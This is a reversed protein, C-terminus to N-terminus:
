RRAPAASPENEKAQLRQVLAQYSESRVIKNFQSRYNAVLSVGEIVVDYALWRGDKRHMRYDVPVETGSSPVITTKVVAEEGDIKEAVYRVKEGEYRDIKSFYTREILDGFLQVFQRREEPTRENWHQGLSRRATDEYDFVKESIKRVAARREDTKDKLSPDSLVRIVEDVQQKLQDTPAGALAPAALVIVLGFALTACFPNM